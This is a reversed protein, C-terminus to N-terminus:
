SKGKKQCKAEVSGILTFAERLRMPQEILPKGDPWVMGTMSQCSM